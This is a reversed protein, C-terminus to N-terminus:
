RLNIDEYQVTKRPLVTIAPKESLKRIWSDGGRPSWYIDYAGVPVGSFEYVGDKDTHTEFVMQGDASVAAGSFLKTLIDSQGRIFVVKVKCGWAPDEGNFIRGVINGKVQSPISGSDYTSVAGTSSLAKKFANTQSIGYYTGGKKNTEGPSVIRSKPLFVTIYDGQDEWLIKKERWLKVQSYDEGKVSEIEDKPIKVIFADEGEELVEVNNGDEKQILFLKDAFLEPIILFVLLLASILIIAIKTRKLSMKLM